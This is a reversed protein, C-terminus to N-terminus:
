PWSIGNDLGGPRPTGHNTCTSAFTLVILVAPFRCHDAPADSTRPPPPTGSSVGFLRAGPYFPVFPREWTGTANVVSRTLWSRDATNVRMLANDVSEVSEVHAVRRVPVSFRQEYEAFYRPLVSRAPEDGPVTPVPLGPLAAIGHVNNMTLSSWRHQWAGGPSPNADLVVFDLGPRLGRRRLHFAASLGAQGAGIVISRVPGM